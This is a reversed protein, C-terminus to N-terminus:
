GGPPTLLHMSGGSMAFQGDPVTESSHATDDDQMWAVPELPGRVYSDWEGYGPPRAGNILYAVPLIGTISGERVQLGCAPPHLVMRRADAMASKGFLARWRAMQMPAEDVRLNVQSVAVDSVHGTCDVRLALYVTGTVGANLAAEPYHMRPRQVISVATAPDFTEGMDTFRASRLRLEIHDPDIHHAVVQLSMKAQTAQPKGDREVPEFRFTALAQALLDKVSAPLKEPQDLTYGTVAGAADVSLTGGVLMSAEIQPQTPVPREAWASGAWLGVVLMWGKRM